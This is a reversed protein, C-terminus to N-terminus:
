AVWRIIHFKQNDTFLKNLSPFKSLRTMCFNELNGSPYWTVNVYPNYSYCYSIECCSPKICLRSIQLKLEYKFQKKKTPSSPTQRPKTQLMHPVIPQLSANPSNLSTFSLRTKLINVWTHTVLVHLFGIIVIM